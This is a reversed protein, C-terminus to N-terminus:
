ESYCSDEDYSAEESDFEIDEEEEEEDSSYRKKAKRSRPTRTDHKKKKKKRRPHTQSDLFARWYYQAFNFLTKAIFGGLLIEVLIILIPTWLFTSGEM